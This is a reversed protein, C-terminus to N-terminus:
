MLMINIFLVIIQSLKKRGIVVIVLFCFVKRKLRGIDVVFYVVVLSVIFVSMKRFGQSRNMVRIGCMILDCLVSVCLVVIGVRSRIFMKKMQSSNVVLIVSMKLDSVVVRNEFKRMMMSMKVKMGRICQMGFGMRLCQVLLLIMYFEVIIVSMVLSVIVVMLMIVVVKVRCVCCWVRIQVIQGCNEVVCEVSGYCVRGSCLCLVCLVSEVLVCVFFSDIYFFLVRLVEFMLCM